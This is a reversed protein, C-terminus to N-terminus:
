GPLVLATMQRIAMMGTSRTSEAESIAMTCATAFGMTLRAGCCLDDLFAGLLSPSLDEVHLRSPARRLRESAFVLLLRFADRYSTITHQSAGLQSVLRDTFFHQLLAPLNATTM